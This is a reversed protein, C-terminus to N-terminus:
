SHKTNTNTNKLAGSHSITTIHFFCIFIFFFITLPVAHLSIRFCVYQVGSLDPDDPSTTLFDQHRCEVNRVRSNALLTRMTALRAADRDFAVIRGGNALLAALLSTKNGPAACCDICLAGPAPALVVPPMCSPKSQVIVRRARVAATSNLRSAAVGARMRVRLVCEPLHADRVVDAVLATERALEACAADVPGALTNVRM